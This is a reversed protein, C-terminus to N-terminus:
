SRLTGGSGRSISTIKEHSSCRRSGLQQEQSRASLIRVSPSETPIQKVPKIYPNLAINTASTLPPRTLTLTHVRTQTNKLARAKIHTHTRAHTHTHTHRHTHRHTHARARAYTHTHTRTHTHACAVARSLSLFSPISLVPPSEFLCIPNPISVFFQYAHTCSKICLSLEDM